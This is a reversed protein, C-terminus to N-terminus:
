DTLHVEYSCNNNTENSEKVLNLADVTVQLKLPYWTYNGIHGMYIYPIKFCPPNFNFDYQYTAGPKLQETYPFDNNEFTVSSTGFGNVHSVPYILRVLVSFTPPQPNGAPTIAFGMNRVTVHAWGPNAKSASYTGTTSGPPSIPQNGAEDYSVRVSCVLDTPMVQQAGGPAPITGAVFKRGTPTIKIPEPLKIKAVEKPQTRQAPPPDAALTGAGVVFAGCLTATASACLKRFSM